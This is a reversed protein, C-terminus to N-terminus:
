SGLRLDKSWLVNLRADEVEEVWGDADEDRENVDEAGDCPLWFFAPFEM